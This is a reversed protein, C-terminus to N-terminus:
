APVVVVRVFDPIHRFVIEDRQEHVEATPDGRRPARLTVDRCHVITGVVVRFVGM